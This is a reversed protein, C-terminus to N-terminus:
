LTRSIETLELDGPTNTRGRLANLRNITQQRQLQLQPMEAITLRYQSAALKEDLEGASGSQRRVNAIDRAEQMVDANAQAIQIQANTLCLEVFARVVEATLSVNIDQIDFGAAQLEARAASQRQALQGWLDLEWSSQLGNSYFDFGTTSSSQQVFANGNQSFQRRDFQMTSGVRPLMEAKSRMLLSQNEAFRAAAQAANPNAALTEANLSTLQPDALSEWWSVPDNDVLRLAPTVTAKPAPLSSSPPSNRSSALQNRQSGHSVKDGASHPAPESRPEARPPELSAQSISAPVADPPVADPPVADPPVADPPVADPSVADPSVASDLPLEIVNFKPSPHRDSACGVALMFLFPGAALWSPIPRRNRGRKM